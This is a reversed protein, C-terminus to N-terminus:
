EGIKMQRSIQDLKALTQSQQTKIEMELSEISKLHNKNSKSGTFLYFKGKYTEYSKFEKLKKSSYLIKDKGLTYFDQKLDENTITQVRSFILDENNIALYTDFVILVM